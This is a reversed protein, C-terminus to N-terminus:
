DSARAFPGSDKLLWTSPDLMVGAPEQEVPFTFTTQRQSLEVREIRYPGQALAMVGIELPLRFLEGAQTQMLTVEVRRAVGDYRWTGELRPVGGRNLWQRFFWELERGSVREMVQRFDDTSANRNRYADYYQRIGSWFVDPGVLGRLMHLTWSGKTYVFWNLVDDMNSLRQHVVPTNPLTQGVRLIIAADDKLGAVFADRGEYHERFLHTFYTAFGESLWIDDWDGETVANGWWQHAMEHVVHSDGSAVGKENYFIVTAHETDGGIGAAQVNAIKEYAYPGIRDSFLEMAQRTTTEFLRYGTEQDQPFVWSQLPVARVSGAHHVAFRAMGVAYLWSAIPVSQRYHTRRWGDRLDMGELLVGNAVVQYRAPATVIFEGTAKDYPHDIMPLWQRARNPWNESFATREGHINDLFRLGDAPVGGYQVVVSVERGAPLPPSLVISLRDNQHTFPVPRGNSTVASVTMGKGNAASSLDLLVEAAGQGAIRLLVTAEGRIENSDDGLTLKFTYHLADIGPQRPYTDAQVLSPRLLLVVLTLAAVCRM